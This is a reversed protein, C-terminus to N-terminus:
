TAGLRGKKKRKAQMLDVIEAEEDQETSTMGAFGIAVQEDFAECLMAVSNREEQVRALPEAWECVGDFDVQSPTRGIVLVAGYRGPRNFAAYLEGTKGSWSVRCFRDREGGDGPEYGDLRWRGQGVDGGALFLRVDPDLRGQTLLELLDDTTTVGDPLWASASLSLRRPDELVFDDVSDYWRKGRAAAIYRADYEEELARVQEGRHREQVRHEAWAELGTLWARTAALKTSTIQLDVVTADLHAEILDVERQAARRESIRAFRDILSKLGTLRPADRYQLATRRACADQHEATLNELREELEPVRAALRAQRAAAVVHEPGRRQGAADVLDPLPGPSAPTRSSRKDAKAAKRLSSAWATVAEVEWVPRPTTRTPAPARGTQLEADFWTSPQHAAERMVALVQQRTMVRM